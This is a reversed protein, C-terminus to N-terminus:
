CCCTIPIGPQGFQPSTVGSHFNQSCQPAGSWPGFVCTNGGAYGCGTVGGAGACTLFPLDPIVITRMSAAIRKKITIIRAIIPKIWSLALVPYGQRNYGKKLARM